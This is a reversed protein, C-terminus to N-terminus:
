DAVKYLIWSIIIEKIQIFKKVSQQLIETYINHM